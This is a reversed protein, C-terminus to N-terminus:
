FFFKKETCRKNNFMIIINYNYAPKVEKIKCKHSKWEFNQPLPNKFIKAEYKNNELM